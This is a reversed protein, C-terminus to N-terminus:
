SEGIYRYTSKKSGGGVEVNELVGDQRLHWLSTRMTNRKVSDRGVGFKKEIAVLVQDSDFVRDLTPIVELIMTKLGQKSSSTKPTSGNKEVERQNESDSSDEILMENRVWDLAELKAKYENVSYRSELEQLEQNFTDINFQKGLKAKLQEFNFNM